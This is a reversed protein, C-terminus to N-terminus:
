RQRSADRTTDKGAAVIQDLSEGYNAMHAKLNKALLPDAATGAAARRVHGEFPDRRNDRMAPLTMIAAAFEMEPDGKSLALAQKMWAYGVIGDAVGPKWGIDIGLQSLSGAFYAADFWSDARGDGSTGQDARAEADLAKWALKALLGTAEAEHGQMYVTARRLTEMRVLVSRETKLIELTDAVVARPDYGKKADFADKGFALSRADGIEFPHCVLPPGQRARELEAARRCAEGGASAPPTWSLAVLGASALIAATTGLLRNRNM